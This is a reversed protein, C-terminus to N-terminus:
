LQNRSFRLHLRKLTQALNPLIKNFLTSDFQKNLDLAVKKVPLPKDFTKLFLDNMVNFSYSCNPFITQLYNSTLSEYKFSVNM